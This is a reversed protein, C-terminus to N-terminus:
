FTMRVQIDIFFYRICDLFLVYPTMEQEQLKELLGRGVERNISISIYDGEFQQVKPRSFDTPLNLVPLQGDLISEWHNNSQSYDQKAEM